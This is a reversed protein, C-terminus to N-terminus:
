YMLFEPRGGSNNIDKLSDISHSAYITKLTIFM